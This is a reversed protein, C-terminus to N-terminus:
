AVEEPGSREPERMSAILNAARFLQGITADFNVFKGWSCVEIERGYRFVLTIEDPTDKGADIDDALKRLQAPIDALSTRKIASVTM